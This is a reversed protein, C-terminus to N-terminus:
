RNVLVLKGRQSGLIPVGSGYVTYEAEFNGDKEWVLFRGGAFLGESLEYQKKNGVNSMLNGKISGPDITVSKGDNSFIITYEDGNNVSEFNSEQFPESPYMVDKRDLIRDIELTYTNGNLLSFSKDSNEEKNCKVFLLSIVLLYFLIKKM